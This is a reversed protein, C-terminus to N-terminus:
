YGWAARLDLGLFGELERNYPGFHARLRDRTAADIPEYDRFVAVRGWLWRGLPRPAWRGVRLAVLIGYLRPRVIEFHTNYRAGLDDPLYGDDIGLHRCVDRYVRAPDNVLDEFLEVRLTDRGFADAWRRLHEVYHGERVYGWGCGTELEEDLVEALERHEDGERQRHRYHSYTRQVPDRLLVVFRVDTGVTTRLRDVAEPTSLYSPTADGIAPEGTVEEYFAEYWPTGAAWNADSSFFTVEKIDPLYVEPHARLHNALSTTGCKAAGLVFFNPLTM